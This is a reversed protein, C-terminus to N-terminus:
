KVTSVVAKEKILFNKEMLIKKQSFFFSYNGCNFLHASAAFLAASLVCVARYDRFSQKGTMVFTKRNWTCGQSLLWQPLQSQTCLNIDLSLRFSWSTTYHNNHQCMKSWFKFKCYVQCGCLIAVVIFITSRIVSIVFIKTNMSFHFPRRIIFRAHFRPHYSNWGPWLELYGAYENSTFYVIHVRM